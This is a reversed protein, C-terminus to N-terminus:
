LSLSRFMINTILFYNAYGTKFFIVWSEIGNQESYFVPENIINKNTTLLKKNAGLVEFKRLTLGTNSGIGSEM